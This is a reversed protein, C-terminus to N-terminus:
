TPFMPLVFDGVDAVHCGSLPMTNAIMAITQAVPLTVVGAMDCMSNFGGYGTQPIAVM